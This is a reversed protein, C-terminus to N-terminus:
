VRCGQVSPWLDTTEIVSFKGSGVRLVVALVNYKSAEVVEVPDTLKDSGSSPRLVCVYKTSDSNTFSRIVFTANDKITVRSTLGPPEKNNTKVTGDSEKIVLVVYAGSKMYQISIREVSGHDYNWVLSVTSGTEGYM